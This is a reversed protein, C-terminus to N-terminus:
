RGLERAGMPTIIWGTFYADLFTVTVPLLGQQAALGVLGHLLAFAYVLRAERSM